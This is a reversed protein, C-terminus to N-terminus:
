KITKPKILFDEIWATQLEGKQNAQWIKGSNVDLCTLWGQGCAWTDICIAHGINIPQGNKQSTHGCIMTKGSFHPKPHNFKKWFLTYESQQNLPLDPNSNAHVFFHKETEWWNLCTNELFHWHSDPIKAIKDLDSGYSILTEQPILLSSCYGNQYLYLAELFQLEHNGRLAILQGQNHLSILRDLVGKSDPGKNIYDGLTILTDEPQLNVAAMLCDFALSCGHIDAIALLRM